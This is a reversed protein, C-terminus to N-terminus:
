PADILNSYATIRVIKARYVRVCSIGLAIKQGFVLFVIPSVIGLFLLLFLCYVAM